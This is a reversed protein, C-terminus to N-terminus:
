RDGSLYKIGGKKEKKVVGGGSFFFFCFCLGLFCVVGCFGFL